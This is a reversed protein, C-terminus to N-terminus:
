PVPQGATPAPATQADLILKLLHGFQQYTVVEHQDDGNNVRHVIVLNRAPIVVVFHGGVGRASFSGGGLDVGPFHKGDAETWWLYEYGGIDFGHYQGLAEGPQSLKGVWSEPVIQQNGWRGHRLYLLGLRALDRSSIHCPYAPHISEPGRIYYVDEARYDEMQLPTAIRQEFAKGISLGAKQEFITGLVNFDWNNYFWFTGPAHSGRTPRNAKMTATEFLAPHYVGSRARLLDVIRAQKEEKTLAPPSDDIGLQELTQNIDIKGEGVYIGYLASLMSKRMSYSNFKRALDGWQDVVVGGQVIMVAASGISDAYQRAIKLKEKSWGAQEPSDLVPWTKGPYSRVLDAIRDSHMQFAQQGSVSPVSAALLILVALPSFLVNMLNMKGM